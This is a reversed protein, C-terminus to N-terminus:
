IDKNKPRLAKRRYYLLSSFYSVISILFILAPISIEGIYLVEYWFVAFLLMLTIIWANTAAKLNQVKRSKLEGDVNDTPEKMDEHKDIIKKV